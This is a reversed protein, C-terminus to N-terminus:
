LPVAKLVKWGIQHVNSYNKVRLEVTRKKSAPFEEYVTYDETGVVTNTKSYFTVRIVVDKYSAVTASNTIECNIKLKDGLLTERYTGDAELFRVPDEQEVEEVSKVKEEYTKPAQSGQVDGGYERYYEDTKREQDIWIFAVAAVGIALIIVSITIFAGRGKRAPAITKEAIVTKKFPPPIAGLREKLEPINSAVTWEELGEYWVPTQPTINKLFLEDVDFPGVHSEGIHLYYKKM